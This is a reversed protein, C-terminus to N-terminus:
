TSTQLTLLRRKPDVVLWALGGVIAFSAAVYFSMQWGFYKAILPTM